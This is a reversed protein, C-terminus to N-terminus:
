VISGSMESSVFFERGSSTVSVVPLGSVSTTGAADFVSVVGFAGAPEVVEVTVMVLVVVGGVVM